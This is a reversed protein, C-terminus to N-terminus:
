RARRRHRPLRARCSTRSASSLRRRRATPLRRMSDSCATTASMSSGSTEPRTSRLDAPDEAPDVAPLTELREQSTGATVSTLDPAGLVLSAAMFNTFPPSYRLVRNNPGGDAVWLNGSADVAVADPDGLSRATRGDNNQAHSALDPQGIVVSATKGNTFPAMFLLVRANFHDAVWVNGSADAAVDVPYNLSSGTVPAAANSVFDPQGLVVSAAQGNVFPGAADAIQVAVIATLSLVALQRRRQSARPM